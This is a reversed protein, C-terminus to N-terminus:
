SHMTKIILDIYRLNHDKVTQSISTYLICLIIVSLYLSVSFKSKKSFILSSSTNIELNYYYM